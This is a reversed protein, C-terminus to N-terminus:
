FDGYNTKEYVDEEAMQKAIDDPYELVEAYYETRNQIWREWFNRKIKKEGNNILRLIGDEGRYVEPERVTFLPAVAYSYSRGYGSGVGDSVVYYAYNTVSPSGLWVGSVGAGNEKAWETGESLLIGISRSDGLKPASLKIERGTYIHILMSLAATKEDYESIDDDSLKVNGKEWPGVTVGTTQVTARGDSVDTVYGVTAGIHVEDFAKVKM